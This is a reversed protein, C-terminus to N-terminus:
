QAVLHRYVCVRDDCLYVAGGGEVEAHHGDALLQLFRERKRAVHGYLELILGRRRCQTTTVIQVHVLQGAEVGVVVEGDFGHAADNGRLASHM